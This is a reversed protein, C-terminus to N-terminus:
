GLVERLEQTGRGAMARLEDSSFSTLGRAIVAGDPGAIDVPVGDPFTGEVATIGVALLSRRRSTVAAAAGDDRTLTGAGRTAFRLWVLRSRRRGEQGPCFPGVAEGAAPAASQGA